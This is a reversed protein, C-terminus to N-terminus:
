SAVQLMVCCHVMGFCRGEIAFRFSAVARTRTLSCSRGGYGPVALLNEMQLFVIGNETDVAHNDANATLCIRMPLKIRRLPM